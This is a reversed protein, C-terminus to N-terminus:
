RMVERLRIANIAARWRRDAEAMSSPDAPDFEDRVYDRLETVAIHAGSEDARALRLWDPCASGNVYHTLM